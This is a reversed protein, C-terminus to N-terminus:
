ERPEEDRKGSVNEPAKASFDEKGFLDFRSTVSLDLRDNTIYKIDAMPIDHKRTPMM